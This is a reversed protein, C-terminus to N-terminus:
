QEWRKSHTSSHWIEPFCVSKKPPNLPLCSLSCAILRDSPLATFGPRCSLLHSHVTSSTLRDLRGCISHTRESALVQGGFIQWLIWDPQCTWVGSPPLVASYARSNITGWRSLLPIKSEKEWIGENTTHSSGDSLSTQLMLPLGCNPFECAPKLTM